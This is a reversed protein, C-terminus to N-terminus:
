RGRIAQALQDRLAVIQPHQDSERVAEELKRLLQAAQQPTIPNHQGATDFVKLVEEAKRFAGQQKILKQVANIQEKIVQETPNLKQAEKLHQLGETFQGANAYQIGLNFECLGKIKQVDDYDSFSRPITNLANLAAQYQEQGMLDQAKRAAEIYPAERVGREVVAIQEKIARETPNLKEAEKLHRLGEAFQGANAYQTGIYFECISKLSQVRAYGRFSSPINRLADLAEQYQKQEMLSDAAEMAKVHPAEKQMLVLEALQERVIDNDPVLDRAQRMDVIAEDLRESNAHQIARRFFCGARIQIVTEYNPFDRPIKGDLAALADDYKDQEFHERGIKTKIIYPYYKAEQELDQLNEILVPHGPEYKLAMAMHDRAHELQRIANRIQPTKEIGRIIGKKLLNDTEQNALEAHHMAWQFHIGALLSHVNETAGTNTELDIEELVDVAKEFEKGELLDRARALRIQISAQALLSVAQRDSPNWEAAAKAYTERLQPDESFAARMLYATSLAEQEPTPPTKPAPKALLSELQGITTQIQEITALAAERDGAVFTEYAWENAQKLVFLLLRQFLRPNCPVLELYPRTKEIAGKHNKSIGHPLEVDRDDLVERADVLWESIWSNLLREAEKDITELAGKDWEQALLGPARLESHTNDALLNWNYLCKLHLFAGALDQSNFSARCRNFHHQLLDQAIQKHLDVSVDKHEPHYRTSFSSWYAQRGLLHAWYYKARMYHHAALDRDGDGDFELAWEWHMLALGHLFVSDHTCARVLDNWWREFQPSPTDRALLAPLSKNDAATKIAKWLFRYRSADLRGVPPKHRVFGILQHTTLDRDLYSQAAEIRKLNVNM